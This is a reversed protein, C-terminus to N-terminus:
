WCYKDRGQKCREDLREEATLERDLKRTTVKYGWMGTKERVSVLRAAKQLKKELRKAIAKQVAASDEKESEGNGTDSAGTTKAGSRHLQKRKLQQERLKKAEKRIAYVSTSLLDSSFPLAVTLSRNTLVQAVIVEQVQLTQPNRVLLVDGTEVEEQFKTEFGQITCGSSVIRGSGEIEEAAIRKVGDGAEQETKIRKRTDSSDHEAAGIGDGSGSAVEASSNDLHESKRHKRKRELKKEQKLSRGRGKFSLAGSRREYLAREGSASTHDAM